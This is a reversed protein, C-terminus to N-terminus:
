EWYVGALFSTMQAGFGSLQPVWHILKVPVWLACFLLVPAELWYAPRKSVKWGNRWVGSWGQAALGAALPLLVVPLWVWRAFWLGANFVRLVTAPKVPKKLKMTLYSAIKFAPEASYGQWWVLLLYIGLAAVGFALLALLNRLAAHLAKNLSLRDSERFYAFAAGHLWMTACFLVVALLASWALRALSSEGISLWYYWVCLLLANGALQLLGLARTARSM